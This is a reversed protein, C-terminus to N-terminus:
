QQSSPTRRENNPHSNSLKINIGVHIIFVLCFCWFFLQWFLFSGCVSFLLPFFPFPLLCDITRNEGPSTSILTWSFYHALRPVTVVVFGLRSLPADLSGASGVISSATSASIAVVTSAVIRQTLGNAVPDRVAITTSQM